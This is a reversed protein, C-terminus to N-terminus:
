LIFARIIDVATYGLLASTIWGPWTDSARKGQAYLSHAEEYRKRWHDRRKKLKEVQELLSDIQVKRIGDVVEKKAYFVPIGGFEHQRALADKMSQYASDSM